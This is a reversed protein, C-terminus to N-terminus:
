TSIRRRRDLTQRLAAAGLFGAALAYPAGALAVGIGFAASADCVATALFFLLLAQAGPAATWSSPSGQARRRLGLVLGLMFFVAIPALSPDMATVEDFTV